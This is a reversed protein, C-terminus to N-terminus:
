KRAILGVWKLLRERKGGGDTKLGGKVIAEVMNLYNYSALVLHSTDFGKEYCAAVVAGFLGAPEIGCAEALGEINLYRRDSRSAGDWVSVLRQVREDASLRALNMFKAKGGVCRAVYSLPSLCSQRHKSPPKNLGLRRWVGASCNRSKRLGSSFM